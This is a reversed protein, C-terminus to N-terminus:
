YLGEVAKSAYGAVRNADQSLALSRRLLDIIDRGWDYRNLSCQINGLSQRISTSIERAQTIIQPGLFYTMLGVTTLLACAVVAYAWKSSLPV